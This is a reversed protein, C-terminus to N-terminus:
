AEFFSIFSSQYSLDKLQQGIEHLSLTNLTFYHARGALSERVSRHLLTQNSATIWLDLTIPTNQARSLRRQEDVRKKIEPFIEPALTAEDLILPGRFQGFFLEPNSNALQRVGLDDFLVLQHTGLYDLLSTKGVQRM